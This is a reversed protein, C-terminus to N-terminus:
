KGEEACARCAMDVFSRVSQELSYRERAAAAYRPGWVRLEDPHEVWWDLKEALEDANGWEYVSQECLAFESAASQEARAVVPVVGTAMAEIVSIGEIDASSCHVLLDVSALFAPMQEHQVFGLSWQGPELMKEAFGRLEEECPGAGAINVRVDQKHRMKSVAYILADHGKEASLRGSAALIFPATRVGSTERERFMQADYGNSFVTLKQSYGNKELERKEMESPVHIFRVHQYFTKWFYQYIIHQINPMLGLFPASALINEPQVHFGATVPIDHALCYKLAAQGFEFPMYIHVLDVGAFARAFLEDDPQAFAMQHPRAYRTLVPIHKEKAAYRPNPAGIGVLRAEHGQRELEAAFQAASNSTGNGAHGLTDVVLAVRLHQTDRM